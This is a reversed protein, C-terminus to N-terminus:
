DRIKRQQKLRLLGPSFHIYMLPSRCGKEMFFAELFEFLVPQDPWTYRKKMEKLHAWTKLLEPNDGFVKEEAADCLFLECVIPKLKWTCGATGLFICKDPREPRRIAAELRDLGAAESVLANVAVDAFFAIIGDRSCCASLGDQFCKETCIDQFHASIFDALTRRYDLYEAAAEHLRDIDTSDLDTLCERIMRLAELQEKQYVNM